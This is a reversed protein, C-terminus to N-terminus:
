TDLIKTDELYDICVIYKESNTIRSTIPKYIFVTSYKCYLYILNDITYNKSIDYFKCILVGGKEQLTTGLTIQSNILDRHLEEKKDYEGFDDLGGDCTIISYKRKIDCFYDFTEKDTIDCEKYTLINIFENKHILNNYVPFGKKNISFTDFVCKRIEKKQNYKTVFGEKDICKSFSIYNTYISHIFSGPAECMSLCSMNKRRLKFEEIIEWIKYFARNFNKSVPFNYPNMIKRLNNWQEEGVIDIKNKTKELLELVDEYNDNDSLKCEESLNFKIPLSYEM